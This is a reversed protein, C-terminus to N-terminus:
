KVIKISAAGKATTVKLIYNGNQLGSTNIEATAANVKQSLVMQGLMNILTVDSIDETYAINLVDNVPNPYVSLNQLSFSESGLVEELANNLSYGRFTSHFTVVNGANFGRAWAYDINAANYNFEFDDDNGTDFARTAVVTRVNGSVTSTSTWDNAADDVPPAGLGAMSADVLTTGNWYVADEGTAMGQGTAFSGIQLAFWRDAPGTLTLTATSTTNNLELKATFGATLTVVPTAKSQAFLAGATLLTTFLLFKKM